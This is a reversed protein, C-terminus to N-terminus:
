KKVVTASYPVKSLDLTVTYTGAETFNLNDGGFTLNDLSGGLNIAWDNDCRFKYEGAASVTM